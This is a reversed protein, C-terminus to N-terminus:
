TNALVQNYISLLQRGHAPWTLGLARIRSPGSRSFKAAQAPRTLVDLICTALGAADGPRFLLGEEGNAILERTGNVSTAVIPLGCAMAELVVNPRGESHSPLVLVDAAGMWLHVQNKAVKGTFHVRDTLGKGIAYANLADRRPGEGVLYLDLPRSALTEQAMAELLTGLGKREILGGVYLAIAGGEPLGLEHRCTTRDRPHFQEVDVGNYLAAVPTSGSTEVLLERFEDSVTLAYNVRQLIARGLSRGLRSNRLTNVDAGRVSVVVPIRRVKGVALALGATPLWQAHIIDSGKSVKWLRLLMAILLPPLQLAGLLSRGVTEFLGEHQYALQQLRDPWFYRVREIDMGDISERSALGPAHPAVVTLKTSEEASQLSKAQEYVFRAYHDQASRIFSTTVFCVRM